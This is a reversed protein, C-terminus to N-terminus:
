ISSCFEDIREYKQDTTHGDWARGYQPMHWSVQGTPLDIYFVPWEPEQPDLRVGANLGRLLAESMAKVVLVYRSGYNTDNLKIQNLYFKLDKFVDEKM